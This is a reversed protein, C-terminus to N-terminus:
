FFCSLFFLFSKTETKNPNTTGKNYVKLNNKPDSSIFSFLTLIFIIQYIFSFTAKKFINFHSPSFEFQVIM